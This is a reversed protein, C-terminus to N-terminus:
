PYASSEEKVKEEWGWLKNKHGAFACYSQLIPSWFLTYFDREGQKPSLTCSTSSIPSISYGPAAVQQLPTM